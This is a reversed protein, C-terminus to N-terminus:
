VGLVKKATIYLASRDAFGNYGGNIIRTIRRFDGVDALENLGHVKWWWASVRCASIPEELLEPHEVCDIDLALMVSVYNSRGTVQILGRGKFRTGDGQMVNGLDKRGEYASGSAIEKVYRLQASEHGIQALFAAQRVPTSIDFETMAANIHALFLDVRKAALPMIVLLQEKTVM